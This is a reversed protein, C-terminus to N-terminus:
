FLRYYGPGYAVHLNYRKAVKNLIDSFSKEDPRGININSLSPVEKLMYSKFVRMGSEIKEIIFKEVDDRPFPKIVHESYARRPPVFSM